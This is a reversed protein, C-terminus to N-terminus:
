VFRDDNEQSAHDQDNEVEDDEEAVDEDDEQVDPMDRVDDQTGAPPWESVLVERPKAGDAEGVVGLEQMLDVIRAARSYGIKMRRQLFSTSVKGADIAINIADELLADSNSPDLMVGGAGSAGETIQHNYEPEGEEKLFDVVREIEAESVYAGQARKPKSLEPTSMLMDGRGLLKEAGSIDLITKSDVQSAVAFALRTPINAKITGTIVDVSPRQTALILHIGAARAMQAIRVIVAEVDRKNQSMLDALEDIVIVIRPMREKSKANYSDIDKAGFKSLYDLRREMERVAWKLANIAEDAKVIPPILLHPIGAYVSLEVRKPDVMIFKLDDPGNQYLLSIIIDNLCVSKGSGTAGAVLMHPAREVSLMQTSGTIDKGVPVAFSSKRHKFEKSELLERLCVKGITQNPVEIGVLSKGPIPAEIRIPHAALALALDNQLAVIRALKVGTPPKLAYQTVTPGVRVEAVECEIGFQHLTKVIVEQGRDLDGSRAESSKDDLLELPIEITRRERSTMIQETKGAFVPGKKVPAEAEEEDDEEITEEEIDEEDGAEAKAEELKRREEFTLEDEEDDSKGRRALALIGTASLPVRILSKVSIGFLLVVSMLLCAAAIIFAGIGGMAGALLDSTINGVLGGAQAVAAADAPDRAFLLNLIGNLSFIFLVAMAFSRFTILQRDHLVVNAGVLFFLIPVAIRAAGLFTSLWSDIMDGFAGAMGFFALFLIAGVAVLVIAFISQKVEDGVIPEDYSVASARKKLKKAM